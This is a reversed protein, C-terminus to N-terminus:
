VQLDQPQNHYGAKQNQIKVHTVQILFLRVVKFYVYLNTM